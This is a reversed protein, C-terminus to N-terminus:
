TPVKKLQSAKARFGLPKASENSDTTYGLTGSPRSAEASVQFSHIGVRNSAGPRVRTGGSIAGSGLNVSIEM